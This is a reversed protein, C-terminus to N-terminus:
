DLQKKTEMLEESLIEMNKNKTAVEKKLQLNSVNAEAEKSQLECLDNRGQKISCGLEIVKDELANKKRREKRMIPRQLLLLIGVGGLGQLRRESM